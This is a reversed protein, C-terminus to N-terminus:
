YIFSITLESIVSINQQYFLNYNFLIGILYPLLKDQQFDVLSLSYLQPYVAAHLIRELSHQDVTLKNIERNIRPLIAECIRDLVENNVSSKTKILSKDTLDLHHIYFPDLVLQDFRQNVGVLSYLVDVMNLKNSIALLIEDPLDLINIGTKDLTSMDLSSQRYPEIKTYM